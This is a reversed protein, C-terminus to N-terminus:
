RRQRKGPWPLIGDLEKLGGDEEDDKEFRNPQQPEDGEDFWLLTLTQDFKPLHRAEELLVGGMKWDSFWVDAAIETMDRGRAGRRVLASASASPLPTGPQIWARLERLTKSRSAYKVKGRESLIFACATETEAAFRSGTSTVSAEFQEALDDVAAFGVAAEHALPRFLQYPLLLETAYVDCHIENQPRKVYSWSPADHQSPLDLHIHAIEHCITFRKRVNSDKDNVVVYWRGKHEFSCGSEGPSLSDDTKLECNFAQLYAQVPVPISNVKARQVLERAKLIATFEDM